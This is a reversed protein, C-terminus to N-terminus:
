RTKPLDLISPYTEQKGKPEPSILKAVIVYRKQSTGIPWCTMLTLTADDTPKIISIDTPSVIKTESVQYTYNKNNYLIQIQDGNVLKPLLAFINKYKGKSWIFDSSHGVIFVNGIQGPKASENYQVVGQNLNAHIEDFKVDWIIPGEVYIKPIIIKSETIIPEPISTTTTVPEPTQKIVIASQNVSVNKWWYKSLSSFAPYNSIIFVAMFTFIILCIERIMFNRRRIKETPKKRAKHALYLARNKTILPKDNNM